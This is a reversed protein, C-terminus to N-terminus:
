FERGCSSNWTYLAAVMISIGGFLVVTTRHLFEFSLVTYVSALIFASVLIMPSIEIGIIQPVAFLLVAFVAILGLGIAIRKPDAKPHAAVEL